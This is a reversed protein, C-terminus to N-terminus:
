RENRLYRETDQIDDFERLCDHCFCGDETKNVEETWCKCNECQKRGELRLCEACLDEDPEADCCDCETCKPM